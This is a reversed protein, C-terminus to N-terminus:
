VADNLIASIATKLEKRFNEPSHAEAFYTHIRAALDDLKEDSMAQAQLISKELESETIAAIPIELGGELGSEKTAIPICKGNSCINIVSTPCGEAVTPSLYFGCKEVLDLYEKTNMYIFGYHHINPLSLTSNYLDYFRKEKGIPAGIHLEWDPHKAFLDLVIDLGKFIAGSGVIFFFNKRAINWDKTQALVEATNNFKFHINHLPFIPGTYYKRYSQKTVDNGYTVIGDVAQTQLSWMQDVLRASELLWIHHRSFFDKLRNIAGYNHSSVEM